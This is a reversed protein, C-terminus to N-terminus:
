CQIDYFDPISVALPAHQCAEKAIPKYIVFHLNKGIHPKRPGKHVVKCNFMIILNRVQCCRADEAVHCGFKLAEFAQRSDRKVGEGGFMKYFAYKTCSEAFRRNFCNKRFTTEAESYNHKFNEYWRGLSHCELLLICRCTFFYNHVLSGRCFCYKRVANGERHCGYKFKLGLEELYAIAESESKFDLLGSDDPGFSM